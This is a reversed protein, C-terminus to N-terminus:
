DIKAGCFNCFASNKNIKHGCKNCAIKGEINDIEEKLNKIEAIYQKIESILAAVELDDVENNKLESYCRKGLSTYAKNLKSYLSSIKIKQKGVSVFEGTKKAAIDLVEKAKQVTDDFSNM